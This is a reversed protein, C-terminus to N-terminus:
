EDNGDKAMDLLVSTFRIIAEHNENVVSMSNITVDAVKAGATTGLRAVADAITEPTSAADDVNINQGDIQVNKTSTDAVIGNVTDVKGLANYDYLVQDGLANTGYVKNLEVSQKVFTRQGFEYVQRETAYRNGSSTNSIGDQKSTQLTLDQVFTKAGSIVETLNKTVYGGTTDASPLNAADGGTLAYALQAETAFKVGTLDPNLYSIKALTAYLEPEVKFTLLKNMFQPDGDIQVFEGKSYGYDNGDAGTGYLINAQREHRVYNLL